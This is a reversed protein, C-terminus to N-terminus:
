FFTKIRAQIRDLNGAPLKVKWSGNIRVPWDDERGSRNGNVGNVGNVVNVVNVVNIM